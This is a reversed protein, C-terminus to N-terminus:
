HIYKSIEDYTPIESLKIGKKHSPTFLIYTPVAHSHYQQMLTTVAKNAHTWDAEILQINYRKFLTQVKNSELLFVRNIKCTLCWDATINIFVYENNQLTKELTDSSYNIWEVDPKSFFFYGGSLILALSILIIKNSKLLSLCIM